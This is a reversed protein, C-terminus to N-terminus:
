LLAIRFGPHHFEGFSVCEGLNAQPVNPLADAASGAPASSGGKGSTVPTPDSAMASTAFASIVLAAALSLRLMRDGEPEHGVPCGYAEESTPSLAM